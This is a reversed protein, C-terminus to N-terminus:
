RYIRKTFILFIKTCQLQEIVVAVSGRLFSGSMPGIPRSTVELKKTSIRVSSVRM